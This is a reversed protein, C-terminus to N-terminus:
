TEHALIMARSFLSGSRQPLKAGRLSLNAILTPALGGRNSFLELADPLSHFRQELSAVDLYNLDLIATCQRLGIM